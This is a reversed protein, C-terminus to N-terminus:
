KDVGFRKKNLEYAKQLVEEAKDKKNKEGLVNALELLGNIDGDYVYHQYAASYDGRKLAEDGKESKHHNLNSEASEKGM